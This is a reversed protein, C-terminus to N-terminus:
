LTKTAYILSLIHEKELSNNYSIALESLLEEVSMSGSLVKQVM